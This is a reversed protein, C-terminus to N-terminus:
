ELFADMGSSTLPATPDEVILLAEVGELGEILAMGRQPGLVSVATALADATMADDALVTVSMLSDSAWGSRPDLIHSLKTGDILAYRRYPGSTAM